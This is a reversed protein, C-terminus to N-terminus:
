TRERAPVGMVTARPLVDRVVVAGAAVLAGEGVRINQIVVAGTGIHAGTGVSVNGSLVAGPAIHSHDGLACDHDIVAGTNIIVNRGVRCGAQVAAKAMVVSGDGFVATGAVFASPHAFCPFGYELGSFKEFLRKRLTNDGTGGLGLALYISDRNQKLIEDDGGIVPVGEITQGPMTYGPDTFGAVDYGLSRVLDLVVRGHGGAGLIIVPRKM